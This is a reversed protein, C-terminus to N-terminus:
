AAESSRVEQAPPGSVRRALYDRLAIRALASLSRDEAQAVRRAEAIEQASLRLGIMEVRESM